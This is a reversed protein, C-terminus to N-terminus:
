DKYSEITQLTPIYNSKDRPDILYILGNKDLGIDPNEIGMDSLEQKFDALIYSKIKRHFFKRSVGLLKALHDEDYVKFM